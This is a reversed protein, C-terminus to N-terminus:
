EKVEDGVGGRLSILQRYEYSKPNGNKDKYPIDTKIEVLIVAKLEAETTRSTYSSGSETFYRFTTDASPAITGILQSKNNRLEWSTPKNIYSGSKPKFVSHWLQESKNGPYPDKGTSEFNTLPDNGRGICSVYPATNVGNTQLYTFYCMSNKTAKMLVQGTEGTESCQNLLYVIDPNIGAKRSKICKGLSAAGKIERVLYTYSNRTERHADSKATLSRAADSASILTMTAMTIAILGVLMGVLVETLTTGKDNRYKM